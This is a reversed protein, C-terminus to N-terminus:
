TDLEASLLIATVVSMDSALGRPSIPHNPIVKWTNRPGYPMITLEGVRSSDLMACELLMWGDPQYRVHQAQLVTLLGDPTQEQRECYRAAFETWGCNVPAM